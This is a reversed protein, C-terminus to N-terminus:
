GRASKLREADMYNNRDLVELVAEYFNDKSDLQWAGYVKLGDRLRQIQTVAIWREVAGLDGVFVYDGSLETM